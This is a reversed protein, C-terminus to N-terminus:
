KHMIPPRFRVRDPEVIALRGPLADLYRHERVFREIVGAIEAAVADDPLRLVVIGNYDGPPYRRIDSFDLDRTLLAAASERARRAIAEDPASALGIDRAFDVFHGLGVLLGVASRPRNADILFRM